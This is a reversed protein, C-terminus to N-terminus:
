VGRGRHDLGDSSLERHEPPPPRRHALHRLAVAAALVAVLPSAWVTWDPLGLPTPKGVIESAPLYAVFALPFVFTFLRRLWDGLVDLPYQTAQSGGYTFANAWRRARWRGSRRRRPPSGCRASSSPAPWSRSRCSCAVEAPTWDIDLLVIAGVSCWWPSSSAASGASSSSPPPSTCCRRCRGSSSCTSPARRSTGRLRERGRERVHRGDRVGRRQARLPAGGRGGVLRGGHRGEHLDLPDRRLRPVDGADPEAPVALVLHPVALRLPDERGGASALGRLQSSAVEAM